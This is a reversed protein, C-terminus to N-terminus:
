TDRHRYLRGTYCSDHLVVPHGPTDLVEAELGADQMRASLWEAAKRTDSAHESRASVSPIRLFDFLQELHEQRRERLVNRPDSM